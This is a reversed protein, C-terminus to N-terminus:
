FKSKGSIKILTVIVVDESVSKEMKLPSTKYHFSVCLRVKQSLRCWRHKQAHQKEGEGQSKGIRNTGCM